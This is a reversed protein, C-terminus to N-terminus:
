LADEPLIDALVARLVTYLRNSTPTHQKEYDPHHKMLDENVSRIPYIRLVAPRDDRNGLKADLLLSSLTRYENAAVSAVGGSYLLILAPYLIASINESPDDRSDRPNAIRTLSRAWLSA